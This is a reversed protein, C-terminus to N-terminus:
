YAHTRAYWDDYSEYPQAPTTPTTAPQNVATIAAQRQLWHRLKRKRRRLYRSIRHMDQLEDPYRRRQQAEYDEEYAM